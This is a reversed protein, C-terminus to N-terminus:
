AQPPKPDAKGQSSKRRLYPASVADQVDPSECKQALRTNMRRSAFMAEKAFSEEDKRAALERLESLSAAVWPNNDAIREAKKLAAAVGPWDHRRAAARAKQQLHAAELEDARRVVLEDEAIAGFAAAPLAPLALSTPQIARPEGDLTTYRLSISCLPLPSGEGQNASMVNAPVRLRVVAWAEGGFALDPLAWGETDTVYDNLVKAKVGPAPEV